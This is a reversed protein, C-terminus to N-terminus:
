NLTDSLQKNKYYKKKKIIIDRKKKLIKPFKSSFPFHSGQETKPTTKKQNKKKRM